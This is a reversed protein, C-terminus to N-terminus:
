PRSNFREPAHRALDINPRRGAFLQVLIRGTAAATLGFHRHGFGPLAGAVGPVSGLIPLSVTLSQATSM